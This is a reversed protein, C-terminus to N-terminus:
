GAGPPTPEAASWRAVEERVGRLRFWILLFIPYAIAFVVGLALSLYVTANLFTMPVQTPQAALENRMAEMNEATLIYSVINQPIAAIIRLLAWLFVLRPGSPHRKCLRIGSVILLVAILALVLNVGTITVMYDSTNDLQDRVMQPMDEGKQDAWNGMLSMLPMALLGCLGGLIALSGLVINIGGIVSPWWAQRKPRTIEGPYVPPRDGTGGSETSIEAM